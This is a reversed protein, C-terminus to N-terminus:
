HATIGAALAALVDALDRQQAVQRQDAAGKAVALREVLVGHAHEQDARTFDGLAHVQAALVDFFRDLEFREDPLHVLRAFGCTLLLLTKEITALMWPAPLAMTAARTSASVRWFSDTLAALSPMVCASLTSFASSPVGAANCCFSASMASTAVCNRLRRSNSFFPAELSPKSRTNSSSAAGLACFSTSTSATCFRDISANSACARLRNGSSLSRNRTSRSNSLRLRSALM